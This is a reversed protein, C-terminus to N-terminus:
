EIVKSDRQDTTRTANRATFLDTALHSSLYKLKRNAILVRQKTCRGQLWTCIERVQPDLVASASGGKNEYNM